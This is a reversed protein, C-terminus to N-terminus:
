HIRTGDLRRTQVEFFQNWLQGNNEQTEDQRSKMASIVYEKEENDFWHQVQCGALLAEIDCM